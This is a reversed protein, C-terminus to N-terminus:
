RSQRSSLKSSGVETGAQALAAYPAYQRLDDIQLGRGVAPLRVTLALDVRYAVKARDAGGQWALLGRIVM